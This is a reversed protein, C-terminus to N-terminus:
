PPLGRMWFSLGGAAQCVAVPQGSRRVILRPNGLAGSAVPSETWAAGNWEYLNLAGAKNVLVLPQGALNFGLSGGDMDDLSGAVVARSAFATGNWEAFYVASRDVNLYVVAPFGDPKWRLDTVMGASPASFVVESLWQTTGQYRYVITSPGSISNMVVAPRGNPQLRLLPNYMQNSVTEFSWTVGANGSSALGVLDLLGDEYVVAPNGSAMVVSPYQLDFTANSAVAQLTWAGGPSRYAYKIMRRTAIGYTVMPQQNTAFALRPFRWSQGSDIVRVDWNAGDFEAYMLAQNTDQRVYTVALRGDASEAMDPQGPSGFNDLPTAHWAQNAGTSASLYDLTRQQNSVVTALQELRDYIQQLTKMGTAPPGSPALPGQARAAPLALSAAFLAFSAFYLRNM